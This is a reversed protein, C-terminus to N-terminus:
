VPGDTGTLAPLQIPKRCITAYLQITSGVEKRRSAIAARAPVISTIAQGGKRAAIDGASCWSVGGGTQATRRDFPLPPRHGQLQIDALAGEQPVVPLVVFVGDFHFM